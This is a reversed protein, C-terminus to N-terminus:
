DSTLNACFLQRPSRLILITHTYKEREKVDLKCGRVNQEVDVLFHAKLLHTSPYM